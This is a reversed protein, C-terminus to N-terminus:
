ASAAADQPRLSLIYAAHPQWGPFPELDGVHIAGYAAVVSLMLENDHAIHVALREETRGTILELYLRGALGLRRWPALMVGECVGLTRGPREVVLEADPEPRLGDWWFTDPPLTYGYVFGIATAGAHAGVLTFGDRQAHRALREAFPPDAHDNAGVERYTQEYVSCWRDLTALVSTGDYRSVLVDAPVGAPTTPPALVSPIRAASM